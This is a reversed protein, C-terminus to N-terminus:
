RRVERGGAQDALCVLTITRASGRGSREIIGRVQLQYLGKQFTRRSVDCEQAANSDRVSVTKQSRARRVLFEYVTRAAGPLSRLFGIKKSVPVAIFESGVSALSPSIMPAGGPRAGAVPSTFRKAMPQAM